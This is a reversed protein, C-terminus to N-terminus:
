ILNGESTVRSSAWLSLVVIVLSVFMMTLFPTYNLGFNYFIMFVATDLLFLILAGIQFNKAMIIIIGAHVLLLIINEFGMGVNAAVINNIIDFLGM